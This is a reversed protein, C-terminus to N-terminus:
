NSAWIEWQALTEAVEPTSLDLTVNEIFVQTAAQLTLHLAGLESLQTDSLTIFGDADRSAVPLELIRHMDLEIFSMDGYVRKADVSPGPWAGSMLTAEAWDEHTWRWQLNRQLRIHAPTVMVQGDANLGARELTVGGYGSLLAVIRDPTVNRPVYLGPEIEGFLAALKLLPLLDIWGDVLAQPEDTGLVEAVAEWPQGADLPQIMDTMPAGAEAGDLELRLRGILPVLRQPDPTLVRLERRYDPYILAAEQESTLTPRTM